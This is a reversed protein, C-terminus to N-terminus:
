RTGPVMNIKEMNYWKLKIIMGCWLVIRLFTFVHNECSSIIFTHWFHIWSMIFSSTLHCFQNGLGNSSSPYIYCVLFPIRLLNNIDVSLLITVKTKIINTSSLLRCTLIYSWIKPGRILLLNSLWVFTYELSHTRPWAQNFASWAHCQSSM